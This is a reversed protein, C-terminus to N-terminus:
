TARLGSDRSTGARRRSISSWSTSSNPCPGELARPCNEKAGVVRVVTTVVVVVVVVENGGRAILGGRATLSKSARCYGNAAVGVGAAKFFRLNLIPSFDITKLSGSSEADTAVSTLM